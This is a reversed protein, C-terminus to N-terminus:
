DSILKNVINRDMRLVSDTKGISSLILKVTSDLKDTSISEITTNINQFKITLIYSKKRNEEFQAEIKDAASSLTDYIKVVDNSLIGDKIDELVYNGGFKSSEYIKKIENLSSEDLTQSNFGISKLLKSIKKLAEIKAQIFNADEQLAKMENVMGRFTDITKKKLVIQDESYLESKQGKVSKTEKNSYSVGSSEGIKVIKM